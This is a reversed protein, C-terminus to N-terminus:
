SYIREIEKLAGRDMMFKGMLDYSIMVDILNELACYIPLNIIERMRKTSPLAWRREHGIELLGQQWDQLSHSHSDALHSTYPALTLYSHLILFWFFGLLLLLYNSTSSGSRNRISWYSVKERKM